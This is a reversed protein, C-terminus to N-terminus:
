RAGANFLDAYKKEHYQQKKTNGRGQYIRALTQHAQLLDQKYHLSKRLIDLAKDAHKQRYLRRGVECLDAGVRELEGKPLKSLHLRENMQIFEFARAPELLRMTQGFYSAALRYKKMKMYVKGLQFCTDSRNSDFRYSAQLLKNALTLDGTEFKKVGEAYLRAAVEIKRDDALAKKRDEEGLLRVAEDYKGQMLLLKAEAIPDSPIVEEDGFLSFNVSPSIRDLNGDQVYIAGVIAAGVLCTAIAAKTIPGMGQSVEVQRTEMKLEIGLDEGKTLKDLNQLMEDVTQYRDVREKEMAKLVFLDQQRTLAQNYCSPLIPASNVHRYGIAVPDDGDFPVKGCLLEYFLVGASYIDSRVDIDAEGRVQEPSMYLPTGLALGTKTLKTGELPKAIGFDTLLPTGSKDVLVNEPKIDRHVVKKSHAFKLAELVGKMAFAAENFPFSGRTREVAFLSAGEVYDMVLFFLGDKEQISHVRVINPHRLKAAIKAERAIRKRFNPEADLSPRMIKIAVVNGTKVHEAKFVVAMGGRGIREHIKYTGLTRGEFGELEAAPM